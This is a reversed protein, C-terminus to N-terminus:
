GRGGCPGISRPCAAREVGAGRHLHRDGVTERGVVVALGDTLIPAPSGLVKSPDGIGAPANWSVTYPPEPTGEPALGSRGADRQYQSWSADVAGFAAVAPIAAVAPVALALLALWRLTRL